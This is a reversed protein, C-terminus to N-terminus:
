KGGRAQLRALRRQAVELAIRAAVIAARPDNTRPMAPPLMPTSM